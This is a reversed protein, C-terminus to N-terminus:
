YLPTKGTTHQGGRVRVVFRDHQDLHWLFDADVENGACLDPGQKNIKSMKM